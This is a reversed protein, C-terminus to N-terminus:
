FEFRHLDREIEDMTLESFTQSRRSKRQLAAYEGPNLRMEVLAGSCIGWVHGKHEIPIGLLIVFVDSNIANM